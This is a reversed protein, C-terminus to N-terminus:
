ATAAQERREVVQKVYALQKIKNKVGVTYNAHHIMIDEPVPLPRGPTWLKATLTGGGFFTTPLYDWRLGAIKNKLLLVNLYDQDHMRPNQDVLQKITQWLQLTKKNARCAFFGACIGGKPDDRQVVIDAHELAKVLEDKTPRFFQIDIDSHVFVGGWSEKIARLILDLKRHMTKKWGPSMFSGSPCEQEHLELVLEYEDQLSPKFWNDVLEKHSPTYFAYLKINEDPDKRLFSALSIVSFVGIILAIPRIRM